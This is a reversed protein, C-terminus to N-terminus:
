LLENADEWSTVTYHYEGGSRPRRIGVYAGFVRARHLRAIGERRLLREVHDAHATAVFPVGCNQAFLMEDIEEGGGIEDCLILQPNMTRVAIEMAVGRPYGTMLDVSLEPGGLADGLEGRTDIVAVRWPAAGSAMRAAVSRLLTTKGEGPPGYILIGEGAGLSELLRCIPAGLRPYRGPLRINLSTVDYIGIIEGREVSARGCIGVRIGGALTLYGAAISERHAYLSGGCMARVLDDMEARGIITRLFVNGRETTLSSQRETRLRIEEM